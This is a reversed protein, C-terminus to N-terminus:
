LWDNRLLISNGCASKPGESDRQTQSRFDNGRLHIGRLLSTFVGVFDLSQWSFIFAVTLSSQLEEAAEILLVHAKGVHLGRQYQGKAERLM